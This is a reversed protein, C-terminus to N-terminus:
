DSVIIRVVNAGAAHSIRMIYTGAKLSHNAYQVVHEGAEYNREAIVDVERGTLDFLAIKVRSGQSIGFSITCTGQFPNPYVTLTNVVDSGNLDLQGSKIPNGDNNSFIPGATMIGADQNNIVLGSTLNIIGTKGAADVDSDTAETATNVDQASFVYGGAPLVYELMYAGPVLGTFTFYGTASTTKAGVVIAPGYNILDLKHLVVYVGAFGSETSQLIGDQNADKWARDGIAGKKYMGADVDLNDFGDALVIDATYGTTPDADSDLPDNEVLGKPSFFYGSPATFKVQYTGAIQNPFSYAGTASTTTSAILTTGQYLKVSAGAVAGTEGADQVGDANSDIWVKNGITHAADDPLYIGADQDNIVLGSTIIIDTTLGTMGVDSDLAESISFVDKPSFVYGGAPLAYELRYIGPVLGTFSFYGTSSTIKTTVASPFSSMNRLNVTVGAFGLETPQQIGDNNVDKWARDGIAGKKYMGADVDIMNSGGFSGLIIEATFGTIPDADSDDMSFTSGKPSLFYGSPATFKVRYTGPILNPFSYAGAASTTTSAILITGQYLKVSAGAVVGTEIPDQRGDGDSDIWVKDGITSILNEPFYIGADVNNNIVGSNLFIDSSRGGPDVDSDTAESTSFVDQPSFVYGGAPIVYELWYIGPVLGTFSFSGTASTIKTGVVGLNGDVKRLNVTVGGFGKETPQLIGDRNVDKWAHDGIAGKKFMGADFDSVVLGTTIIIPPTKGTTPEADSETGIGNPSFFYGSPVTFKVYYSGEPLNTFTYAGDALTTFASGVAVNALTFLQVKAGALGPEVIGPYYVDKLGNGNADLWVKGSITGTANAIGAGLLFVLCTSVILRTFNKM